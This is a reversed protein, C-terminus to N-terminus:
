RRHRRRGAPEPRACAPATALSADTGKPEIQFSLRRLVLACDVQYGPRTVHPGGGKKPQVFRSKRDALAETKFGPRATGAFRLDCISIASLTRISDAGHTALM